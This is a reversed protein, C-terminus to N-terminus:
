IEEYDADEINDSPASIEIDKGSLAMQYHDMIKKVQDEPYTNSLFKFFNDLVQEIDDVTINKHSDDLGILKGQKEISIDLKGFLTAKTKIADIIKSHWDQGNVNEQIKKEADEITKNLKMVDSWLENQINKRQLFLSHRVKEISRTETSSIERLIFDIDNSITKRAWPKGTETNIYPRHDQPDKKENATVLIEAIQYANYGYSLYKKVIERRQEKITPNQGGRYKKAPAKKAFASLNM